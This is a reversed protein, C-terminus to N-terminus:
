NNFVIHPFSAELLALPDIALTDPYALTEMEKERLSIKWLFPKGKREEMVESGALVVENKNLWRASVLMFSPGLFLLRERTKNKVDILAAETDPGAGEAHLTGDKEEVIFNYSLIDIALSSDANFILLPMLAELETDKISTKTGVDREGEEQIFFKHPRFSSDNQQLWHFVEPFLTIREEGGGNEIFPTDGADKAEPEKDPGATCGLIFFFFVLLSYRM